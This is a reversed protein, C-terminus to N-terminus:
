KSLDQPHGFMTGKAEANLCGGSWGARRPGVESPSGLVETVRHEGHGVVEGILECGYGCHGDGRLHGFVETHAGQHEVVVVLMGHDQRLLKGGHVHQGVSSDVDADARSPHTGVVVLCSHLVVGGTDADIAEDFTQLHNTAAHRITREGEGAAM